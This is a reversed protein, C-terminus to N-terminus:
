VTLEGTSGALKIARLVNFSSGLCLFIGLTRRYQQRRGEGDSCATRGPDGSTNGRSRLVYFSSELCLFIGLTPWYQQRRGEVGSCAAWCLARRLKEWDQVLLRSGVATTETVRIIKWDRCTAFASYDALGVTVEGMRAVTTTWDDAIM